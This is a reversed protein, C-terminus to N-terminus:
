ADGSDRRGPAASRLRAWYRRERLVGVCCRKAPQHRLHRGEKPSRYLILGTEQSRQTVGNTTGIQLLVPNSTNTEERFIPFVQDIPSGVAPRPVFTVNANPNSDRLWGPKLKDWGFLEVNNFHGTPDKAMNSWGDAYPRPFTVGDHPYLDFMGFHHGLAHDFQGATQNFTHVSASFRKTGAGSPIAYPWPGTTAWEQQGRTEGGSGDDNTLIFMRDVTTFDFGPETSHISNIVDQVLDVLMNGTTSDYYHARSKGLDLWGRINPAGLGAQTYSATSLYADMNTVLTGVSGVTLPSAPLGADNFRALVVLTSQTGTAPPLTPCDAVAYIKRAEFEQCLTTIHTGFFLQLDATLMADAGQKFTPGDPVNFHSQLVLRDTTTKGLQSFLHFLTQSWIQGNTHPDGGVDFNDMTFGTDLRRLCSGETVAWEAFCAQDHGSTVLEGNYDSMAWYDGFGEGMATAGDGSLYKGVATNDQISHGYEHIVAEADEAVRQPCLGFALYGAGAPSNVYHANCADSFGRSDLPVPRNNVDIFGLEQIYRQSRDVAAYINTDAFNDSNSQFVFSASGTVSVPTNSPGEKDQIVAFPGNLTFPGTSPDNLDTLPVTFYPNPNTNPVATDRITNDNKSAVPNPIFVQGSGDVAFAPAGDKTQLIRGTTADVIFEKRGLPRTATVMIKYSRVPQGAVIFYVDSIQPNEKLALQNRALPTFVPRGKERMSPPKEPTTRLYETIAFESAQERTLPPTAPGQPAVVTYSNVVQLLRGDKTLNVQVRGNEVPLGNLVQQFEVNGGSSGARQSLVRIDGLDPHLGFMPANEALFKRAAEEPKEGYSPTGVGVLSEIRSKDPSLRVTWRPGYKRLFQQVLPHFRDNPNQAQAQARGLSVTAILCFILLFFKRTL